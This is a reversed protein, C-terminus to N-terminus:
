MYTCQVYLVYNLQLQTFFRNAALKRGAKPHLHFASYLTSMWKFHLFSIYIRPTKDPMNETPNTCIQPQMTVDSSISRSMTSCTSLQMSYICVNLECENEHSYSLTTFFRGLNKLFLGSLFFLLVWCFFCRKEKSFDVLFYFIFYAPCKCLWSYIKKKILCFSCCHIQLVQFFFFLEFLKLLNKHNDEEARCLQYIEVLKEAKEADLSKRIKSWVLDYTSFICEISAASTPCAFLYSM